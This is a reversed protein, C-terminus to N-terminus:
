GVKREICSWVIIIVNQIDFYLVENNKDKFGTESVADLVFSLGEMTEEIKEMDQNFTLSELSEEVATVDNLFKEFKWLEGFKADAAKIREYM